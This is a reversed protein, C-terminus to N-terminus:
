SPGTSGTHKTVPVLLRTLAASIKDSEASTQGSIKQATKRGQLQDPPLEDIM